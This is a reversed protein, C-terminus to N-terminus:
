KVIKFSPLTPLADVAEIKTGTKLSDLYDAWAQMMRTREDLHQTRNYAAGLRDPVRHGLQAEIADPSFGLTEHLMTRATARFGHGTVTEQDWGMTRLAQNVTNESLVRSAARGPFVYESSGTFPQLAQLVEVAQWALPVTHVQGKRRAKEKLTLKTDELPLQWARREMDIDKWKANRLEGPRVFLMPALKLACRVVFSGAYNDIDVLLRGLKDPNLIAAMSKKNPQKLVKSLGAAPNNEVGPIDSVIAFNFVQGIITKIRHASEYAHREEVLRLAALVDKTTIDSIQRTGLPPLIDRELRSIVTRTHGDTWETRAIELWQRAVREFTNREIEKSLSEAASRQKREESPNIGNALLNRAKQRRERAEELSIDPYTGLSLLCSKGNFNYKLRWWRSVPLQKGDKTYKKAPIFLFLGGGDFLTQPKETAKAAEVKKASLPLVSRSMPIVKLNRILIVSWRYRNNYGFSSSKAIGCWVVFSVMFVFVGSKEPTKPSKQIDGSKKSTSIAPTSGADLVSSLLAVV